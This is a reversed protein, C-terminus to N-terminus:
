GGSAEPLLKGIRESFEKESTEGEWGDRVSFDPALLVTAPIAGTWKPFLQSFMQRDADPSRYYTAFQVGNQRLFKDALPLDAPDDMSIFFVSLGKPGLRDRIKLLHPFETKCPECWSAWFNILVLSSNAVKAAQQLQALTVPQLLESQFAADSSQNPFHIKVVGALWLSLVVVFVVTLTTLGFVAVKKM